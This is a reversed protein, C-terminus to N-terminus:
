PKRSTLRLHPTQALDGRHKYLLIAATGAWAAYLPAALGLLSIYLLLVLLAGVVAWGPVTILKHLALLSFALVFPGFPVTLATWAGFTTALAKGGNFGLFPSFAHGAIPAVVIPVLSWGDMAATYYALAVPAAGKLMDLAIALVALSTKGSARGVNTGGPNGDGFQRIDKGTALRGLWVSLPLSGLFFAALTWLAVQIM